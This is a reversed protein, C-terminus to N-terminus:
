DAETAPEINRTPLEHIKSQLHGTAIKELTSKLWACPEVGNMKCTTDGCQLTCPLGQRMDPSCRGEPEKRLGPPRRPGRSSAAGHGLAPQVDDTESSGAPLGKRLRKVSM